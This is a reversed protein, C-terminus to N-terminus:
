PGAGLALVFGHLALSGRTLLAPPPSALRRIEPLSPRRFAVKLVRGVSSAIFLNMECSPTWSIEPHPDFISSFFRLM